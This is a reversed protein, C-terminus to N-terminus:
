IDNLKFFIAFLIVAVVKSLIFMEWNNSDAIVACFATTFVLSLTIYKLEM